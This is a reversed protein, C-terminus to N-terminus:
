ELIVGIFCCLWVDIIIHVKEITAKSHVLAFLLDSAPAGLFWRTSAMMDFDFYGQVILCSKALSLKSLPPICSKGLVKKAIRLLQEV